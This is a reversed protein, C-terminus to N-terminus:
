EGPNQTDTGTNTEVEGVQAQSSEQSEATETAPPTSTRDADRLAAEGAKRNRHEESRKRLIKAVDEFADALTSDIYSADEYRDFGEGYLDKELQGHVNSGEFSGPGMDNKDMGWGSDDYYTQNPREGNM